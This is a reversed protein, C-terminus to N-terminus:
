AKQKPALVAACVWHGERSAESVLNLLLCVYRFIRMANSHMDCRIRVSQKTPDPESVVTRLVQESQIRVDHLMPTQMNCLGIFLMLSEAPNFKVEVEQRDGRGQNLFRRLSILKEEALSDPPFAYATHLAELLKRAWPGSIELENITENKHNTSSFVLNM